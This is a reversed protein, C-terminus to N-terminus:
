ETAGKAKAAAKKQAVTQVKRNALHYQIRAKLDNEHTWMGGLYAPLQGGGAYKAYFMGNKDQIIKIEKIESM